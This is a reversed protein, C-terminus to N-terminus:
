NVLWNRINGKKQGKRKKEKSEWGKFKEMQKKEREQRGEMQRREERLKVNINVNM